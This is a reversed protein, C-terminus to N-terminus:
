NCGIELPRRNLDPGMTSNNWPGTKMQPNPPESRIQLNANRLSSGVTNIGIHHGAELLSVDLLGGNGRPNMKQFQSNNDKPLLDKPDIVEQRACAKPVAPGSVGKASAPGSNRALDNAGEKYNSGCAGANTNVKEHSSLESGVESVVEKNSYGSTVMSKIRSYDYFAYLLVVGAIALVLQNSFVDKVLKKLMIYFSCM